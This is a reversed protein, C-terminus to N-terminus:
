NRIGAASVPQTSVPLGGNQWFDRFIKRYCAPDAHHEDLFEGPTCGFKESQGFDIVIGGNNAAWSNLEQKTRQLYVSYQPHQLFAAELGPMLPPMYLILKGGNAAITQNLTALRDFLGHDIAGRTHQLARAYKSSSAQAAIILRKANEIRGYDSYTASGDYRFGNCSGRNHIGFDKGKAQGDPCLYEDSGIQLFHERFAKSPQPSKAINGLVKWLKSMRSYSVAENLTAWFGPTESKTAAQDRKPPSLDAVGIDGPQYVFGLSWDLAIIYHRVQPAHQVLYEAQAISATLPSGSQTFNYLRWEPPMMSSDIPMGTSSGFIVTDIEPLRDNLRLIKFLNNNGLTPSFTIGHSDRQWDSAAFSMARIDGENKLLVCNLAITPLLTICCLFLLWLLYRKHMM